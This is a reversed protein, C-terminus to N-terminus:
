WWSASDEDDEDDYDEEDYDEEDYDDSEILEGTEVNILSYLGREGRDYWVNPFYNNKDMWDAIEELLANEDRDRRSIITKGLYYVKEFNPDIIIDEQEPQM